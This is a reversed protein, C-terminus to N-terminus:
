STKALAGVWIGMRLDIERPGSLWKKVEDLPFSAILDAFQNLRARNAELLNKYAAADQPLLERLWVGKISTPLKM